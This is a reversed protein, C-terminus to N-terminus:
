IRAIAKLENANKALTGSSTDVIGNYDVSYFERLESKINRKSSSDGRAALRAKLVETRATVGVTTTKFIAELQRKGKVNVVVLTILDENDFIDRGIGYRNGGHETQEIFFDEAILKTMTRDSIFRYDVGEIEKNRMPRTTYSVYETYKNPNTKILESVISSKGSGSAGTVTVIIKSM